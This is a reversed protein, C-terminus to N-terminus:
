SNSACVFLNIFGFITTGIISVVIETQTNPRTGVFLYHRLPVQISDFLKTIKDYFIM